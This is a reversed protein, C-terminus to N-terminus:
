RNRLGMCTFMMTEYLFVKNIQKAKDNIVGGGELLTISCTISFCFFVDLGQRSKFVCGKSKRDAASGNRWLTMQSSTLTFEFSM